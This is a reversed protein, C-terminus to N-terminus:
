TAGAAAGMPPDIPDVVLDGDPFIQCALAIGRELEEPQVHRSSMKGLHYAGRVIAVKCIGCGGGRCGVPLFHDGSLEM